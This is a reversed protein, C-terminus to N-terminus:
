HVSNQRTKSIRLLNSTRTLERETDKRGVLRVLVVKLDSRSHLRSKVRRQAVYRCQGTTSQDQDVTRTAHETARVLGSSQVPSVSSSDETSRKRKTRLLRIQYLETTRPGPCLGMLTNDELLPIGDKQEKALELAHASSISKTRDLLVVATVVTNDKDGILLVITPAAVRKSRNRGVDRDVGPVKRPVTCCLTLRTRLLTVGETAQSVLSPLHNRKKLSADSTDPGPIQYVLLVLRYHDAVVFGCHPRLM